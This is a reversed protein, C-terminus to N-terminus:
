NIYRNKKTNQNMNGVFCGGVGVSSSMYEYSFFIIDGDREAQGRKLNAWLKLFNNQNDRLKQPNLSFCFIVHM